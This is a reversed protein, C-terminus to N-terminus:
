IENDTYELNYKKISIYSVKKVHERMLDREQGDSFTFDIYIEGSVDAFAPDRYTTNVIVLKGDSNIYYGVSPTKNTKDRLKIYNSNITKM